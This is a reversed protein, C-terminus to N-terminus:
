WQLGKEFSSRQCAVGVQFKECLIAVVFPAHLGLNAASVAM